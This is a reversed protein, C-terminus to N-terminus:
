HRPSPENEREKKHPRSSILLLQREREEPPELLLKDVLSHSLIARDKIREIQGPRQQPRERPFLQVPNGLTRRREKTSTTLQHHPQLPTPRTKNSSPPSAWPAPRPKTSPKAVRQYKPNTLPASFTLTLSRSLTPWTPPAYTLEETPHRALHSSTTGVALSTPRRRM